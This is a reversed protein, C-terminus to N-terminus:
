VSISFFLVNVFISSNMSVLIKYIRGESAGEEKKTLM